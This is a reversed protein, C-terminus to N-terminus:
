LVVSRLHNGNPLYPRAQTGPVTGADGGWGPGELVALWVNRACSGRPTGLLWSVRLHDGPLRTQPGGPAVPHHWCAAPGLLHSEQHSNHEQSGTGQGPPLIQLMMTLSHCPTPEHVCIQPTGLHSAWRTLFGANDSGHSQDTGARTITTVETARLSRPLTPSPAVTVETMKAPATRRFASHAPPALSCKRPPASFCFLPSILKVVSDYKVRGATM